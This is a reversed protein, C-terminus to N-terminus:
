FWIRALEDGVSGASGTAIRSATWLCAHADIIDDAACAGPDRASVADRAADGLGVRDLAALREGRGEASRKSHVMPAGAMICFCVEPHSERVDAGKAAGDSRRAITEGVESIKGVINWCQKSLGLRHASSARSVRLAEPYTRCALVARVPPTFVSSARARGLLKRAGRDCQRGGPEAGEPLGIPIDVAVFRPPDDSTLAEAFRALVTCRHDQLGGRRGVRATAVVWGGRCGDIGAVITSM